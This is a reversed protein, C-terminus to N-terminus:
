FTRVRVRRLRAQVLVLVTAGWGEGALDWGWGVGASVLWGARVVLVVVALRGPSVLGSPWCAVPGGGAQWGALGLSEVRGWVLGVYVSGAGFAWSGDAGFALLGGVVPSRGVM